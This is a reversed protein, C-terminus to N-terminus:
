AVNNLDRKMSLLLRWQLMPPMCGSCLIAEFQHWPHDKLFAQRVAYCSTAVDEDSM